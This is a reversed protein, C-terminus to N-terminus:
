AACSNNQNTESNDTKSLKNRFYELRGEMCTDIWESLIEGTVDEMNQGTQVAYLKIALHIESKVRLNKYKM